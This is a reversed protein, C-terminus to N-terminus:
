RVLGALKAADRPVVAIWRDGTDVTAPGLAGPLMSPISVGGAGSRVVLPLFVEAVTEGYAPGSYVRTRVGYLMALGPRKAAQCVLIAALEDSIRPGDDTPQDNGQIEVWGRPASNGVMALAVARLPRLTGLPTGDPVAVTFGGRPIKRGATM